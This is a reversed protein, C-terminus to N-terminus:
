GQGSSPFPGTPTSRRLAIRQILESSKAASQVEDDSVPQKWKEIVTAQEELAALEPLPEVGPLRRWLRHALGEDDEIDERYREAERKRDGFRKLVEEKARQRVFKRLYPPWEVRRKAPKRQRDSHELALKNLESTLDADVDDIWTALDENQNRMRRNHKRVQRPVDWYRLGLVTLILGIIALLLEM